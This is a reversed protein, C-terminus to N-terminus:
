LLLLLNSLRKETESWSSFEFSKNLNENSIQVVLDKHKNYYMFIFKVQNFITPLDINAWYLQYYVMGNCKYYVSWCNEIM